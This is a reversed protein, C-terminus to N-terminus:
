DADIVDNDDKTDDHWHEVITSGYVFLEYFVFKLKYFYLLSQDIDLEIQGSNQVFTGFVGTCVQFHEWFYKLLQM